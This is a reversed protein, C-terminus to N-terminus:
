AEILHAIENYEDYIVDKHLNVYDLYTRDRRGVSGRLRDSEMRIKRVFANYAIEEATRKTGRVHKPPKEPAVPAEPNQAKAEAIKARLTAEKTMFHAGTINLSKAEEILALVETTLEKKAM